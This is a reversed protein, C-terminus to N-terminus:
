ELKSEESIEIIQLNTCKEFAGECIKSVDSPIFIEKIKSYSFTCMKTLKKCESFAFSSIIKINSLICIDEIDRCAFLLIDFEVKSSDSKGVLYKDEKM